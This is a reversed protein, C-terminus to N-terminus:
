LAGANGLDINSNSPYPKFIYLTYPVSTKETRRTKFEKEPPQGLQFRETEKQVDKLTRETPRCGYEECEDIDLFALFRGARTRDGQFVHAVFIREVSLSALPSLGERRTVNFTGLNVIGEITKYSGGAFILADSPVKVRGAILDSTGMCDDASAPYAHLSMGAFVFFLTLFRLARVGM